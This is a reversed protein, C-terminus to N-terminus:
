TLPKVYLQRVSKGEQDFPCIQFWASGVVESLIQSLITDDFHAYDYRANVINMTTVYLELVCNMSWIFM